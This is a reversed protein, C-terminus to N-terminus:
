CQKQQQEPHELVCMFVCCIYTCMSVRFVHLIRQRRQVGENSGMIHRNIERM